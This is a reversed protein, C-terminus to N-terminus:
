YDDDESSHRRVPIGYSYKENDNLDEVSGLPDNWPKFPDDKSMPDNWPAFPDTNKM